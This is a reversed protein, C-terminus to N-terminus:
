IAPHDFGAQRDGVSLWAIWWAPQERLIRIRMQMTPSHESRVKQDDWVVEGNVKGPPLGLQDACQHLLTKNAHGEPVSDVAAFM